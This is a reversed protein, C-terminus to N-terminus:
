AWCNGSWRLTPAPLSYHAKLAAEVWVAAPGLGSVLEVLTTSNNGQAAMQGAEKCRAAAIALWALRLETAAGLICLAARCRQGLQPARGIFAPQHDLGRQQHCGQWGETALTKRKLRHALYRLLALGDGENAVAATFGTALLTRLRPILAATNTLASAHSSAM